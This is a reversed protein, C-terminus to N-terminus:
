NEYAKTIVADQLPVDRFGKVQGTPTKAIKDVVDLGEIVKGFVAYGFKAPDTGQNDLSLNHKLNIFFQSTASDVQNTRAMSLTGRQNLLGNTAENKIAPHPPQRVKMSPEFGGGQIVYIGPGPVVRHFILGNYYSETVYRRFNAVTLPAQKDYLEIVMKGMNTELTVTKGVPQPVGEALSVAPWCLMLAIIIIRTFM